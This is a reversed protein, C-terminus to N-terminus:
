KIVFYTLYWQEGNKEFLLHYSIDEDSSQSSDAKHIKGSFRCSFLTDSYMTYDSVSEEIIDVTDPKWAWVLSPQIDAVVAYADSGQMLYQSVDAFSKKNYVNYIYTNCTDLVRQEVLEIFGEDTRAIYDYVNDSSDVAELQNGATDSVKLQPRGPCHKIIYEEGTKLVGGLSQAKQDVADNGTVRGTMDEQTLAVGDCEVAAGKPVEVLYDTYEIDDTDFAMNKLKWKHFGFSDNNGASGLSIVAIRIDGCYIDYVPINDKYKDSIGYSVSHNKILEAFYRAHQQKYGTRKEVNLDFTNIYELLRNYDLNSIFDEACIDPNAAKQAKDYSSQYGKLGHWLIVCVIVIVVGMAGAYIGLFLKFRNKTKNKKNKGM